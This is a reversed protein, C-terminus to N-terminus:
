HWRHLSSNDRIVTGALCLIHIRLRLLLTLQSLPAEGPTSLFPKNAALSLAKASAKSPYRCPIDSLQHGIAYHNVVKM